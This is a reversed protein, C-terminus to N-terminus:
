ITRIDIILMPNAAYQKKATVEIVQKDDNYAVGNLADIVVKVINDIDPKKNPEIDGNLMDKAKGKPTSKPIDYWVTISLSINDDAFMLMPAKLLYYTKILEEYDKTKKPTYVIGSKTHRPRAKGQPKGPVTFRLKKM